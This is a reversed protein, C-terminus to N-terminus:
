RKPLNLHLVAATKGNGCKEFTSFAAVKETDAPVTRKVSTFLAFLVTGASLGTFFSLLGEGSVGSFNM